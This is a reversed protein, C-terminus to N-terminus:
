FRLYPTKKGGGYIGQVASSTVTFDRSSTSGIIMINGKPDPTPLLYLEGGSGGLVTSFDWQTHDASLKTIFGGVSGRVRRQYAASTVPFNKSGTYGTFILAGRELLALRHEDFEARSGGLFTSYLL